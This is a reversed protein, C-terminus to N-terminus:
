IRNEFSQKKTASDIRSEPQRGGHSYGADGQDEAGFDRIESKAVLRNM